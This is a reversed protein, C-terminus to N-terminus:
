SGGGAAIGRNIQAMFDPRPSLDVTRIRMRGARVAACDLAAIAADVREAMEQPTGPQIVSVRNIVERSVPHRIPMDPDPMVMRLAALAEGTTLPDAVWSRIVVRSM